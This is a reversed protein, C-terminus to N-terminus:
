KDEILKIKKILKYAFLKWEYSNGYRDKMLNPDPPLLGDHMQKMMSFMRLTSLLEYLWRDRVYKPQLDFKAPISKMERLSM